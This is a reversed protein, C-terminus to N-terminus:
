FPNISIDLVLGPSAVHVMKGTSRQIIKIFEKENSNTDSLHTLVINKTKSMDNARFLKVLNEISMHSELVRNRVLSNTTGYGESDIIGESYNAEVLWHTINSFKFPSYYSDTIFVLNGMEEHKIVFGFCPTDHVMNVPIVTFENLMSTYKRNAEIIKVRHHNEIGLGTATEIGMAVHIGSDLYQKHYKSHDGHLHSLLCGQIGELNFDLFKKIEVVPVGCELLLSNGKSDILAYANGKSSSSFVKLRM